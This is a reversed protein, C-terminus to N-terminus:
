EETWEIPEPDWTNAYPVVFEQQSQSDIVCLLQQASDRTKIIGIGEYREVTGPHTQGVALNQVRVPVGDVVFTTCWFRTAWSEGQPILDITTKMCNSIEQVTLLYINSGLLSFELSV